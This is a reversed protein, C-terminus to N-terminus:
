RHQPRTALEDHDTRGFHTAASFSTLVDQSAADHRDPGREILNAAFTQYVSLKRVNAITLNNFDSIQFLSAHQQIFALDDATYAGGGFLVKLPM